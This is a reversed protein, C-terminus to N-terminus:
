LKRCRCIYGTGGEIIEFESPKLNALIKKIGNKTLHRKYYDTNRDHTDLLSWEFHLQKTLRYQGYYFNIPSIRRLVLQILKYNRFKWHVPFFLRTLFSTIKMQLAPRSHLTRLMFWYVLYLSTFMGMHFKYHDFILKGEPKLVRYLENVSKGTSSTHQLVGLCIVYDFFDSKIPINLIDAQFLTLKENKGNNMYNAEVATSYDFSYLIAGYKLLIETFRGAGSGTELVIKGKLNALPENLSNALRTETINTGTYSDLQTKSFTNWQLGFSKNYSDLNIFRPIDNVIPYKENDVSTLSDKVFQLDKKTKPSVFNRYDM